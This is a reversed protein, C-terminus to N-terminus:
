RGAARRIRRARPSAARTPRSSRSFRDGLADIGVPALAALASRTTVPTREAIARAIVRQWHDLVSRVDADQPHLAVRLLRARSARAIALAIAARSMSRRLASTPSYWAVDTPLWRRDALRWLGGRLAVYEFPAGSALAQRAQTSLLWAPPVFGAVPWGTRRWIAIAQAVRDRADDEDVAAFEGEGRTLVCREFFGRLTRPASAEDVHVFGHLAVEDGRAIRQSIADIFAPARDIAIGRHYWPVVLLTTCPAGIRELRELLAACRPWTAPAVDHIEISLLARM